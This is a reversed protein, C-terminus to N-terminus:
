VSKCPFCANLRYVIMVEIQPLKLNLGYANCFLLDVILYTVKLTCEELHVDAFEDDFQKYRNDLVRQM